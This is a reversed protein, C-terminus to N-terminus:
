IPDQPTLTKSNSIRMFGVLVLGVVGGGKALAGITYGLVKILNQPDGQLLRMIPFLLQIAAYLAYSTFIFYAPVRYEERHYDLFAVAFYLWIFYDVFASPWYHFSAVSTSLLAAIVPIVLLCASLKNLRGRLLLSGLLIALACLADFYIFYSEYSENTIRECIIGPLQFLWALSWIAFTTKTIPNSWNLYSMIGFFIISFGVVTLNVSVVHNTWTEAIHFFFPSVATDPQKSAVLAVYWVLNALVGSLTGLILMLVIDLTQFKKEAM